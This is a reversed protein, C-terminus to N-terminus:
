LLRNLMCKEKPCDAKGFTALIVAISDGNDFRGISLLRTPINARM